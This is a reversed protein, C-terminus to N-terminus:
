EVVLEDTCNYGKVNLDNRYERMTKQELDKNM